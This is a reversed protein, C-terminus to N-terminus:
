IRCNGPRLMQGHGAPEVFCATAQSREECSREGASGSRVQCTCRAWGAARWAPLHGLGPARGSCRGRTLTQPGPDGAPSPVPLRLPFSLCGLGSAQGGLIWSPGPSHSKVGSTRGESTRLLTSWLHPCTPVTHDDAAKVQKQSM